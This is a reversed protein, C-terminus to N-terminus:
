KEIIMKEMALNAKIHAYLYQSNFGYKYNLLEWTLLLEEKKNEFYVFLFSVTTTM